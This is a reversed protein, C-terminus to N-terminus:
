WILCKTYDNFHAAESLEKFEWPFYNYMTFYFVSMMKSKGSCKQNSYTTIILIYINPKTFRM